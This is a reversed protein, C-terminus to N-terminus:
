LATKVSGGIEVLDNLRVVARKAPLRAELHFPLAARSAGSASENLDGANPAVFPRHVEQGM